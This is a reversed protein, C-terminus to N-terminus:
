LDKVGRQLKRMADRHADLLEGRRMREEFEANNREKELREMERRQAEAEKQSLLFSRQQDASRDWGTQGASFARTAGPSVNSLAGGYPSPQQAFPLSSHRLDAQVSTRFSALQAQRVAEPAIYTGMANASARRHIPQHSNFNSTSAANSLNLYPQQQQLQVHVHGPLDLSSQRLIQRRASMPLDDLDPNNELSTRSSSAGFGQPGHISGADSSPITSLGFPEAGPSYFSAQSRNRLLVERKGILTQPSSYSVVGPIPPRTLNPNSTSAAIQM